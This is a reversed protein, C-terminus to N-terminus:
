EPEGLITVRLPQASEFVVSVVLELYPKAAPFPPSHPQQLPVLPKEVLEAAPLQGQLLWCVATWALLSSAAYGLSLCGCGPAGNSSFFGPRAASPKDGM